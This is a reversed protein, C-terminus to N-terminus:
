IIRWTRCAALRGVDTPAVRGPQAQLRSRIVSLRELLRATVAGDDVPEDLHLHRELRDLRALISSMSM